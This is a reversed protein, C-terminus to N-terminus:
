SINQVAARHSVTQVIADPRRGHDGPHDFLFEADLIMGTMHALQQGGPSKRHLPRAANQRARVDGRLVAPPPTDIRIKFFARARFQANIKV